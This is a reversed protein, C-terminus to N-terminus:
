GGRIRSVAEDWRTDRALAIDGYQRATDGTSYTESLEITLGNARPYSSSHQEAIVAEKLRDMVDRAKEKLNGDRVKWSSRVRSAFDYLDRYGTFQQTKDALGSLTSMSTSTNLIAEAFRDVSETLAPIKSLDTASMTPLDGQNARAMRVVHEALQRPQMDIRSNLRTQLESLMNPNLLKTYMWGDGGEVEQSAVLFDAENKLQHAVETSAMLCADFGVVDLKRGTAERAEKLGQEITPLSMWGNHSWDQAAGKWGDGHDSIILMYREAPYKEMGWRIFDALNHPDSMNTRGPREVIPSNLGDRSDPQLFIRQAGTSGGHDFQAVVNTNADSGVVEAEDLDQYMYSKLDNDSASWILITWKKPPAPDASRQGLEVRDTSAAPASAPRQTALSPPRQSVASLM